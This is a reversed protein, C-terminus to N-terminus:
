AEALRHVHEEFATAAPLLLRRSRRSNASARGASNMQGVDAEMQTLEPDIFQALARSVRAIM